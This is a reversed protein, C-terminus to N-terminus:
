NSPQVPTMGAGCDWCRGTGAGALKRQTATRRTSQRTGGCSQNTCKM